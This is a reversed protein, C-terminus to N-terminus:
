NFAARLLSLDRNSASVGSHRRWEGYQEITDTTIDAVPWAGFRRLAGDTRALEASAIM